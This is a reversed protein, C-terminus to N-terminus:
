ELQHADTQELESNPAPASDESQSGIECMVCVCVCVGVARGVARGIAGVTRDGSRGLAQGADWEDAGAGGVEAAPLGRVLLPDARGSGGHISPRHVVERGFAGVEERGDGPRFQHDFYDWDHDYRPGPPSRNGGLRPGEAGVTHRSTMRRGCGM